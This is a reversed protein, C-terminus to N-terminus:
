RSSKEMIVCDRKRLIESGTLRLKWDKIDRLGREELFEMSRVDHALHMPHSETAGVPVTMILRGGPALRSTLYTLEGNLDPLHELVDLSIITDFQLGQADIEEKSSTFYLNL